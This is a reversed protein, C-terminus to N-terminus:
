FIHKAHFTCNNPKFLVYHFSVPEGCVCPTPICMVKWWDVHIRHMIAHLTHRCGLSPSETGSPPPGITVILRVLDKRANASDSGISSLAAKSDRCIIIASPPTHIANMWQLAMLIAVLEATYVSVAPLSFSHTMNNFEPVVFAAGAAGDAM